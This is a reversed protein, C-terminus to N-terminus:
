CNKAAPMSLADPLSAADGAMLRLARSQLQVADDRDGFHDLVDSIRLLVTIEWAPDAVQHALQSAEFAHDRARERAAHGSGSRNAEHGDCLRAATECLECLLDVALDVSGTSRAWRLAIEFYAEAAAVADLGNYCRAVQALAAAMAHPEARQEATDLDAAARRLAEREAGDVDPSLPLCHMAATM